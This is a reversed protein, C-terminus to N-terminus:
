RSAGDGTQDVDPRPVDDRDAETVRELSSMLPGALLKTTDFVLIVGAARLEPRLCEAAIADAVGRLTGDAFRREMDATCLENAGTLMAVVQAPDLRGASM